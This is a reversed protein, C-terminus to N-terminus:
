QFRSETDAGRGLWIKFQLGRLPQLSQLPSIIENGLDQKLSALEKRFGDESM